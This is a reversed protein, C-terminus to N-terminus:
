YKARWILTVLCIWEGMLFYNLIFFINSEIKCLSSLVYNEILIHADKKHIPYKTRIIGLHWMTFQTRAVLCPMKKYIFHVRLILTYDIYALSLYSM